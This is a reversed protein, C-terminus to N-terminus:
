YSCNKRRYIETLQEHSLDADAEDLSNVALSIDAEARDEKSDAVVSTIADFFGDVQASTRREELKGLERAIETCSYTEVLALQKQSHGCAGLTILAVAVFPNTFRTLTM